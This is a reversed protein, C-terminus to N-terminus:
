PIALIAIVQQQYHSPNTGDNYTTVSTTYSM